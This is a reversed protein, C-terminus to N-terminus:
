VRGVADRHDGDAIWRWGGAAAVDFGGHEIGDSDIVALSSDRFRGSWLFADGSQVGACDRVVHGGFGADALAAVVTWSDHQAGHRIRTSKAGAQAWLEGRSEVACARVTARGM